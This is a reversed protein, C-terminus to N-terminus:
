ERDWDRPSKLDGRDEALLRPWINGAALGTTGGSLGGVNMDNWMAYRVTVNEDFYRELTNGLELVQVAIQGLLKIAPGTDLTVWQGVDTADKITDIIGGALELLADIADRWISRLQLAGAACATAAARVGNDIAKIADGQKDSIDVLADYAEGQWKDRVVNLIDRLVGSEDRLHACADTYEANMEMLEFPGGDMKDVGAWADTCFDSFEDWITRFAEELRDAARHVLYAFAPSIVQKWTDVTDNWRSIVWDIAEEIKTRLTELEDEIGDTFDVYFAYEAM